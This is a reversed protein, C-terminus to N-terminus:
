SVGRTGACKIRTMDDRLSWGGNLELDDDRGIGFAASIRNRSYIELGFACSNVQDGIPYNIKWGNGIRCCFGQPNLDLLSVAWTSLKM